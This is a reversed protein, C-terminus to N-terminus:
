KLLQDHSEFFSTEFNPVESMKRQNTFFRMHDPFRAFVNPFTESELLKM